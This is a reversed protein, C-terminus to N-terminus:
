SPNTIAENAEVWDDARQWHTYLWDVRGEETSPIEAAPVRWLKISVTRHVLEGNWFDRLSRVGEFGVHTCFVVDLGGDAEDLLALSGALRPPLLHRLTKAKDYQAPDITRIKELVKAQRGKSFRTGEPFILVLEEDRLGRLLGRLEALAAETDVSGRRVFANPISCGVLDIAPDNLLEHKLVVRLNLKPFHLPIIANPVLSDAVSAHRVMMLYPGQEAVELGEVKIKVSFLRAAFHFLGSLFRFQTRYNAALFAPSGPPGYVRRILVWGIVYWELILYGAVFAVLRTASFRAQPRLLDTILAAVLLLPSLPYFLLTALLYAGITRLRRQIREAHPEQPLPLDANM